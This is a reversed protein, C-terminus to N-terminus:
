LRIWLLRNCWQSGRDWTGMYVPRLESGRGLRTRTCGIYCGDPVPRMRGLTSNNSVSKTSTLLSSGLIGLLRLECFLGEVLNPSYSSARIPESCKMVQRNESRNFPSRMVRQYM